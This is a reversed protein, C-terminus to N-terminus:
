MCTPFSISKRTTSRRSATGCADFKDAPFKRNIPGWAIAAQTSPEEVIFRDAPSRGTRHGTEVVLAGNDALVGEGRNLAEKVLDDISLDTYVANNAQTM